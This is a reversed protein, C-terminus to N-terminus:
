DVTGFKKEKSSSHKAICVTFMKHTQCLQSYVLIFGHFIIGQLCLTAFLVVGATAGAAKPHPLGGFVLHPGVDDILDYACLFVVDLMQLVNTLYRFLAPLSHLFKNSLYYLIDWEQGSLSGLCTVKIKQFHSQVEMLAQEALHCQM